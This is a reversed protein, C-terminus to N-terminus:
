EPYRAIIRNKDRESLKFKRSKAYMVSLWDPDHNLLGIMHGIEHTVLPLLNEGSIQPNRLSNIGNTNLVIVSHQLYDGSRRSFTTGMRVGQVNSNSSDRYYNDDCVIVAVYPNSLPTVRNGDYVESAKVNLSQGVSIVLGSGPISNWTHIAQKFAQDLPGRLSAPCTSWNYDISLTPQSWRILASEQM